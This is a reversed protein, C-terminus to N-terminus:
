RDHRADKGTPADPAPEELARDLWVAFPGRERWAAALPEAPLRRAASAADEGRSRLRELWLPPLTLALEPGDTRSALARIARGAPTDPLDEMDTPLEFDVEMVRRDLPQSTAGLEAFLGLMAENDALVYNRFVSIGNRRASSTLLALLVTGLGRGQYRDLVTIAGEAVTPDHRLRVYRGIGMGPAELDEPDLAVWAVHDVHDIETVYRLQEDTLDNVPLHFALERSRPSLWDLGRRLRRRDDPRIPRVLTWTGDRLELGIPDVERGEAAEDLLEAARDLVTIPTV